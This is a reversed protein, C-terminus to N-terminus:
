YCTKTMSHAHPTLFSHKVMYGNSDTIIVMCQSCVNVYKNRGNINISFQLVKGGMVENGTM